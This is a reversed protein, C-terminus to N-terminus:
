CYRRFQDCLVHPLHEPHLYFHYIASLQSLTELYEPGKLRQYMHKYLRIVLYTFQDHREHERFESLMAPFHEVGDVSVKTVDGAERVEIAGKYLGSTNKEERWKRDLEEKDIVFESVTAATKKKSIVRLRSGLYFAAEKAGVGFKSIKVSNASSREVDGRKKRAEYSLSHVAFQKLETQDMGCGNDYIVVFSDDRESAGLHFSIKVKTPVSPDEGCAQISNDIFEALGDSIRKFNRSCDTFVGYYPTFDFEEANIDGQSM